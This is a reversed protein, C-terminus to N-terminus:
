IVRNGGDALLREALFDCAEHETEFWREGSRQGRESYFVTWGGAAAQLCMAEDPASGDLAYADPRVRGSRLLTLLANRDM